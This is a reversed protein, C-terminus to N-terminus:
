NRRGRVSCKLFRALNGLNGVVLSFIPRDVIAISVGILLFLFVCVSMLTWVGSAKWDMAIIAAGISIAIIAGRYGYEVIQLASLDPVSRSVIRSALILCVLSGFLGAFAVGTIGFLSGLVFIAVIRMVGELVMVKASASFEGFSTSLNTLARLRGGILACLSLGLIVSAQPTAHPGIWLSLVNGTQAISLGVGISLTLFTIALVEVVVRKRRSKEVGAVSAYVASGIRDVVMGVLGILKAAVSYSAADSTSVLTGVASVELNTNAIGSARVISLSWMARALQRTANLNFNPSSYGRQRWQGTVLLGTFLATAVGFVAQAVGFALVGFDAILLAILAAAYVLQSVLLVLGPVVVWRWAQAIAGFYHFVTSLATGVSWLVVSEFIQVKVRVDVNVSGIAIWGIAIAAATVTITLAAAILAASGALNIFKKQDNRSEVESLKQTLATSLGAELIGAIGCFGVVTLWAGYIDQGIFKFYLPVLAISVIANIVVSAIGIGYNAYAAQRPKMPLIELVACFNTRARYRLGSNRM